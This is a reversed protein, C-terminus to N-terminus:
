RCSDVTSQSEGTTSNASEAFLSQFEGHLRALLAFRQWASESNLRPWCFELVNGAMKEEDTAGPYFRRIVDLYEPHSENLAMFQETTAALSSRGMLLQSILGEKVAIRDRIEANEQDLERSQITSSEMQKRLDPMNWIDLGVSAAWAPRAWVAVVLAIVVLLGFAIRFRAILAM